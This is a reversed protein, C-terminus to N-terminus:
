PKPNMMSTVCSEFSLSTTILPNVLHPTCNLGGVGDEDDDLPSEEFKSVFIEGLNTVGDSNHSMSSIYPAVLLGHRHKPATQVM